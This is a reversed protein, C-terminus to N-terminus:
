TFITQLVVVAALSFCGELLAVGWNQDQHIEEDLNELPIIIRDMVFRFFALVASGLVFWALFLLLSFSSSLPVALLIGMAVLNIGFSVGAAVNGEKLEQHFDYRIIKQYLRSYLLFTFQALLFYALTLTIDAMWGLSEGTIISRIIMASGLYSGAVVAGVGINHKELLEKKNDFHSLVFRNNFKGAFNLLFIGIVGWVCVLLLEDLLSEAPGSLVGELIAAVGGMYGVFTIAIAKNDAKVLQYELSYGAFLDFVKKGVWMLALVLIVLLLNPFYSLKEIGEPSILEIAFEELAITM